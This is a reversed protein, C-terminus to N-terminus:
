GGNEEEEEGGGSKPKNNHLRMRMGRDRLSHFLVPFPPLPPCPFFLILSLFRGGEEEEEKMRM